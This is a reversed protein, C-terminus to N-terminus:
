APRPSRRPAAEAKAPADAKAAPAAEGDAFVGGAMAAVVMAMMLKRM